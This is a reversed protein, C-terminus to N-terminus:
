HILPTKESAKRAAKMLGKSTVIFNPSVKLGMKKLAKATWKNCTNFAHYSEVSQYFCINANVRRYEEPLGKENLLFSAEFYDILLKLNEPSAVIRVLNDRSIADYPNSNYQNVLIVSRTPFAIAKIALWPGPNDEPFYLEDGWSFEIFKGEKWLLSSNPWLSYLDDRNIVLATHWGYRVLYIFTLSNSGASLLGNFILLLLCFISKM